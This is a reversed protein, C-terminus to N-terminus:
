FFLPRNKFFHIDSNGDLCIQNNLLASNLVSLSARGPPCRGGEGFLKKGTMSGRVMEGADNDGSSGTMAEADRSGM